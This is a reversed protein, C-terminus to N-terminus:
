LESLPRVTVKTKLHTCTSMNGRVYEVPGERNMKDKILPIVYKYYLNLLLLRLILIMSIIIILPPSKLYVLVPDEADAAALVQETQRSQLDFM